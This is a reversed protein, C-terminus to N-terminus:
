RIFKKKDEEMEKKFDPIGLEKGIKKYLSLLEQKTYDLVYFGKENMVEYMDLEKNKTLKIM